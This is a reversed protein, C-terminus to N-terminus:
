ALGGLILKAIISCCRDGRLLSSVWRDINWWEVEIIGGHFVFFAFEDVQLGGWEGM